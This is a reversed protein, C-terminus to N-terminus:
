PQYWWFDNNSVPDPTYGHGHQDMQGYLRQEDAEHLLRDATLVVGIFPGHKQVADIAYRSCTPVMMCSSHMVPRLGTQYFGLWLRAMITGPHTLESMPAVTAVRDGGVVPSQVSVSWPENAYVSYSARLMACALLGYMLVGRRKRAAALRFQM